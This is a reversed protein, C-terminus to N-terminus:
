ACNKLYNKNSKVNFKSLLISIKSYFWKNSFHCLNGSTFCTDVAWVGEDTYMLQIEVDNKSIHISYDDNIYVSDCIPKLVESLEYTFLPKNYRSM